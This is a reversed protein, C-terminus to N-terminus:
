DGAVRDDFRPVITSEPVLNWRELAKRIQEAADINLPSSTWLAYPLNLFREETVAPLRNIGPRSKLLRVKQQFTQPPYDVFVFADPKSAAVREWSVKTWSDDVDEIANRGGASDIIAEPAGFRGSSFVTDSASDFLFITPPKEPRPAYQLADLRRTIDDVVQQAQQTHGTITGLNSLDDRLAQWPEVIGRRQGGHQRCSETLVYPAIGQARLSAPTLRTEESYGYNWGAVMVDPRQALVTESSPYQPAVVNLRDVVDGYHRRLTDADRQLSSVAAVQDVAGIALAMAIMNGDNVFLRRAPSPFQAPEGCNTITIAAGASQTPISTGCAALSVAAALAAVGSITRRM